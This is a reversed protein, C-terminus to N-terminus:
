PINIVEPVELWPNTRILLPQKLSIRGQLRPTACTRAGLDRQMEWSQRPSHPTSGGTVGQRMKTLEVGACVTEELLLCFLSSRVESLQGQGSKQLSLHLRQFTVQLSWPWPSPMPNERRFALKRM